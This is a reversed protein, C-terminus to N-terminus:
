RFIVDRFNWIVFVLFIAFSAANLLWRLRKSRPQGAGAPLQSASLRIRGFRSGAPEPENAQGSLGLAARLREILADVRSAGTLGDGLAIRRGDRTRAHIRYYAQARNGQRTQMGISKGIGTIDDAAAHRAFRLGLIGRVTTLGQRGATVRLSNGAMYIGWILILVGIVTFLWLM